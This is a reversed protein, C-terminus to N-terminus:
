LVDWGDGKVYPFDLAYLEPFNKEAMESIDAGAAFIKESGQILLCGIEADQEFESVAQGVEAILAISLANYVKPRNLTIVGVAGKKEVLINEYAM